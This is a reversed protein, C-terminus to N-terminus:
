RHIKALMPKVIDYLCRTLLGPLVLITIFLSCSGIKINKVSESMVNIRKLLLAMNRALYNNLQPACNYNHNDHLRNYWLPVAGSFAFKGSSLIYFLPPYACNMPSDKNVSWWTPFKMNSMSDRRYLGYFCGDDYKLIFKYLQILVNPASYNFNRVDGIYQGDHDVFMYPCFAFVSNNAEIAEVLAQVFSKSWIDDAAAWM